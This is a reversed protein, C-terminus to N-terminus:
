KKRTLSVPFNGTDSRVPRAFVKSDLSKFLDLDIGPPIVGAKQQPLNEPLKKVPSGVVVVVGAVNRSARRSCYVGYHSIVKRSPGSLNEGLLDSGRYTVIAPPLGKMRSIQDAMVGGYMVHIVDPQFQAVAGRIRPGMRYYVFPGEKRRDFFEVRVRLGISQLSHILREVCVGGTSAASTPYMNTVALVKM